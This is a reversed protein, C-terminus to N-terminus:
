FSNSPLPLGSAKKALIELATGDITEAIFHVSGDCFVSMMGGPHPSCYANVNTGNIKRDTTGNLVGAAAGWGVAPNLGVWVAGAYDISTETYRGQYKEGIAIVNSTGDVIDRIGTSSSAFFCGDAAALTTSAKGLYLNNAVTGLVPCYNSKGYNGRNSLVNPDRASPCHFAALPTQTPHPPSPVTAPAVPCDIGSSVALQDYVAGQELHPLLMSGWAWGPIKEDAAAASKRYWGAPFVRMVDHYNHLALGLQKLNNSCQSRRAAERAAQVAPLLLAILIGIIAIVVLLEVLTFARTNTPRNFM